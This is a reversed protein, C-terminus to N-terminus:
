GDVGARVWPVWEWRDADLPRLAGVQELRSLLEPDPPLGDAACAAMFEARSPTALAHGLRAAHDGGVGGIAHEVLRTAVSALDVPLERRATSSRSLGGETVLLNGLRAELRAAEVVFRPSGEARAALADAFSASLGLSATGLTRLTEPTMPELVVDGGDPGTTIVLLRQGAFTQVLEDPDPPDVVVAVGRGGAVTAGLLRAMLGAEYAAEMLWDALRSKGIGAPGGVAVRRADGGAAARLEDWLRARAAERGVLTPRRHVLVTPSRPPASAPFRPPSPPVEMAPTLTRERLAAMAEGASGFRDAPRAALMKALWADLFPEGVTGVGARPPKGTALAVACCALGYLDTWPGLTLGARQEPALYGPTGRRVQPQHDSVFHAIGFDALVAGREPHELINAPKLDLHVVGRSHAHGLAGLMQVLLAILEDLGVEGMHAAYSGGTALEMCLAPAGRDLGALQAATRGVTAQGLLRVINPHDLAAVARVERGFREHVLGSSWRGLVKVAVAEGSTPDRAQWVAGMGGAGIRKELLFRGVPAPAQAAHLTDLLRELREEEPRRGQQETSELALDVAGVARRPDSVIWREAIRRLSRITDWEERSGVRRRRLRDLGLFWDPGDLDALEFAVTEYIERLEGWKREPPEYEALLRRADAYRGQEIRVVVQLVGMTARYWPLRIERLGVEIAEDAADLEGASLAARIFTMYKGGAHVELEQQIELARRAAALAEEPRGLAELSEAMASLADSEGLKSGTRGVLHVAAGAAILAEEHDGSLQLTMARRVAGVSRSAVRDQLLFNRAAQQFDHVSASLRNRAVLYGRRLHLSARLGRNDPGADLAEFARDSAALAAEEDDWLARVKLQWGRAAGENDGRATSEEIIRDAVALGEATRGLQLHSLGVMSLMRPSPVGGAEEWSALRDISGQLDGSMRLANVEEAIPEMASEPPQPVDLGYEVRRLYAGVDDLDWEPHDDLDALGDRFRGPPLGDRVARVLADFDRRDADIAGSPTPAGGGAVRVGRGDFVLADFWRVNPVDAHSRFLRTAAQALMRVAELSEAARAAEPLPEGEAAGTVTSGKSALREPSELLTSFAPEAGADPPDIWRTTAIRQTREDALLLQRASRHLQEDHGALEALRGEWAERPLEVLEDFLERLRELEGKSLM